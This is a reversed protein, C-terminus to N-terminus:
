VKIGLESEISKILEDSKELHKKVKADMMENYAKVPDDSEYLCHFLEKQSYTHSEGYLISKALHDSFGANRLQDYTPMPNDKDFGSSFPNSDKKEDIPVNLEAPSTESGGLMKDAAHELASVASSLVEKTEKFLNSM